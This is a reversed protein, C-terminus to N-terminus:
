RKTLGTRMVWLARGLTAIFVFFTAACTVLSAGILFKIHAFAEEIGPGSVSLKGSSDIMGSVGMSWNLFLLLSIGALAISGALVIRYRSPLRRSALWVVFAPVPGFAVFMGVIAAVIDIKRFAPSHIMRFRLKM